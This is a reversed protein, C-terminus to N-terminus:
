ARHLYRKCERHMDFILSPKPVSASRKLMPRLHQMITRYALGQLHPPM